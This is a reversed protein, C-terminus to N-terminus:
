GASFPGGDFGSFLVTSGVGGVTPHVLMEIGVGNDAVYRATRLNPALSIHALLDAPPRGFLRRRAATIVADPCAGTAATASSALTARELQHEARASMEECVSLATVVVEASAHTPELQALSVYMDGIARAIALEVEPRVRTSVANRGANRVAEAISPLSGQSRARDGRAVSFLSGLQLFPLVLFVCLLLGLIANRDIVAYVLAVLELVTLIAGADSSRGLVGSRVIAEAGILALVLGVLVSSRTM